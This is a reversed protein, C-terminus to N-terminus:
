KESVDKAWYDKTRTYSGDLKDIANTLPIEYCGLMKLQVELENNLYHRFYEFSENISQFEHGWKLNVIWKGKNMRKYKDIERNLRIRPMCLLDLSNFVIYKDTTRDRILVFVYPYHKFLNKIATEDFIFINETPIGSKEGWLERNKSKKEKCDFAFTIGKFEVLFDIQDYSDTNDKKLLFESCFEIADKCDKEFSM